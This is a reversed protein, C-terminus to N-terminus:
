ESLVQSSRESHGPLNNSKIVCRIRIFDVDSGKSPLQDFGNPYEFFTGVVRLTKFEYRYM